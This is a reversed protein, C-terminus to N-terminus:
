LPSEQHSLHYLIRRYYLLCLHHLNSEQTPFIGQLRRWPMAVWEQRSLGMPLPAQHALAWLTAFLKIHSLMCVLTVLSSEQYFPLLPPTAVSIKHAASSLTNVIRDKRSDNAFEQELFSVSLDCLEGLTM